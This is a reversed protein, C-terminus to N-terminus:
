LTFLWNSACVGVCVCVVSVYLKFIDMYVLKNEEVDEFNHYHKEMFEQQLDIFEDESPVSWVLFPFYYPIIMFM